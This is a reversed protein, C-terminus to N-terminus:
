EVGAMANPSIEEYREMIADIIKKSRNQEKAVELLKLVAPESDIEQLQKKLAFLNKVLINAQEDTIANATVFDLPPETSEVILGNILGHKNAQLFDRLKDKEVAVYPWEDTLVLGQTDRPNFRVGVRYPVNKKYYVLEVVM